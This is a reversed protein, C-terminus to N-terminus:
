FYKSLYFFRINGIQQSRHLSYILIPCLPKDVEKYKRVNSDHLPTLWSFVLHQNKLSIIFSFSYSYDYHHDFCYSIAFCFSLVCSSTHFHGKEGGLELSNTYLFYCSSFIVYAFINIVASDIISYFQFYGLYWFLFPYLLNSYALIANQLNCM